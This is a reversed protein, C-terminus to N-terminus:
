LAIWAMTIKAAQSTVGGLTISSLSMGVTADEVVMYTELTDGIDFEQIRYNRIIRMDNLNGSISNTVPSDSLDQGNKRFWISCRRQQGVALSTAILQGNHTIHYVGPVQITFKGAGDWSINQMKSVYQYNILYPNTNAPTLTQNTYGQVVARIGRALVWSSLSAPSGGLYQYIKGTSLHMHEHGVEINNPFGEGSTDPM